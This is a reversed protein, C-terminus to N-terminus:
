TSSSSALPRTTSEGIAAVQKLLDAGHVTLCYLVRPRGKPNFEEKAARVVGLAELGRLTPYVRGYSIGTRQSVGFGYHSDATSDLLLRMIRQAPLGIMVTM